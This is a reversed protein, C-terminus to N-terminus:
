STRREERYTPPPMVSGEFEDEYGHAGPPDMRQAILTLLQGEFRRDEFLRQLDMDTSESSTGPIVPSPQSSSAPQGFLPEPVARAAAKEDAARIFPEVHLTYDEKPDGRVFPDVTGAPDRDQEHKRRRWLLFLCGLVILALFVFAGVVIGAIAGKSL